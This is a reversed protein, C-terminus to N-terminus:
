STEPTMKVVPPCKARRNTDLLLREMQNLVYHRMSLVRWVNMLGLLFIIQGQSAYILRTLSV